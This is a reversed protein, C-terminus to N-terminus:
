AEQAQARGRRRRRPSGVQAPLRSPVERVRRPHRDEGAGREAEHHQAEVQQAVRQAVHEVRTEASALSPTAKPPMHSGRPARVSVPALIENTHTRLATTTSPLPGTASYSM